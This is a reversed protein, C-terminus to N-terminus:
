DQRALAGRGAPYAAYDKGVHDYIVAVRAASKPDPSREAFSVFPYRLAAM